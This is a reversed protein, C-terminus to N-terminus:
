LRAVHPGQDERPELKLRRSTETSLELWFRSRKGLESEVGVRGGMRDMVKRVLALGIGTGEYTSQGRSFMDFVKPVMVPPIGIGQDEIWIRAWGDQQEAWVRIQPTQGPKVFKVANGLLNSFCQTLGAENGLVVPLHSEITIQARSPQLEPYSNIMGRLLVGTDVPELPLEQRVAQSYNLADRILADMRDASTMIRKLFGKAEHNPCSACLENVVVDGFAKMARLPARMDHTITYSFHELEGVLEHLKATREAVLRELEAQFENRETIDQVTGVLRIARGGAFSVQGTAAIWRTQHDKAHIVRFEAYYKGDGAPDLARDVAAQTKARDDPHLGAIFTEFTVPAEPEVGWLERVRADWEIRGSFVDYDHIGLMAAQKALRLREEQERLQKETQHKYLAMQIHTELELSQFPKLIYGFPETLKARQLTAPDSHATLYIVPIDCEKRLLQAAEIGDLKGELRIDMLVLSPRGERALTVATEGSPTVGIVKYGLRGLKRSLDEAVIAEDEVILISAKSM